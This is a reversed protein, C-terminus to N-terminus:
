GYFGLHCCATEGLVDLMGDNSKDYFIDEMETKLADWKNAKDQLNVIEQETLKGM